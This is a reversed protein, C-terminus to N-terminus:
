VALRECMGMVKATHETMERAPMYQGQGDTKVLGQERLQSLAARIDSVEENLVNALENLSMPLETIVKHIQSTLKTTM